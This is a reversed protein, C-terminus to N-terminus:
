TRADKEPIAAFTDPHPGVRGKEGRDLADIASVEDPLLTFDLVKLNEQM